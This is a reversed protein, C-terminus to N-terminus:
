RGRGQKVKWRWWGAGVLLLGGLVVWLVWRHSPPEFGFRLDGTGSVILGSWLHPLYGLELQALQAKQLADSVPLGEALSQYFDHTIDPSVGDFVDWLSMVVQDCGVQQFSWGVSVVGIGPLAEGNGTQCASLFALRAKLKMAPIEAVQLIGDEKGEGDAHFIISSLMPAVPDLEGHTALHLLAYNGAQEKFKRELAESALWSMGWTADKVSVAEEEAKTLPALDKAFGENIGISLTEGTKVMVKNGDRSLQQFSQLYSLTTEKIL